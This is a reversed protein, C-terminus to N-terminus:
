AANATQTNPAPAAAQTITSLVMSEKVPWGGATEPVVRCFVAELAGADWFSCCTSCFTELTDRGDEEEELAGEEEEAGSADEATESSDACSVM